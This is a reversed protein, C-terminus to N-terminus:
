AGKKGYVSDLLGAAAAFVREPALGELCAPEKPCENFGCGVCDLDERRVAVHRRDPPTWSAPDSSGHVTVTPVGLSVALHKTGSCNTVLLRCGALVRAAEALTKTEPASAGPGIGSVVEDALAKEGPGWLVRIGCGLRERLMRGLSAYHGAPWRRTPKRSAPALAVPGAPDPAQPGGLYVRPLFDTDTDPVGLGCLLRIKERGAYRTVSSQTMRLNYAWRHGVHSPGARLGAGSAATLIASRPNGMFDIVWDYRSRRVKLLWSLYDQWGDSRYVLVESIDPNGALVEHSPPEVLFDVVAEPYRRKLAAVAPTAM